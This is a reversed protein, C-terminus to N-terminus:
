DVKLSNVISEVQEELAPWLTDVCNYTLLLLKGKLSTFFFYSFTNRDTYIVKIIGVNKSNIKKLGDGIWQLNPEKKMQTMHFGKYQGVENEAVEQPMEIIKLSCFEEKDTLFVTPRSNPDPFRDSITKKDLEYFSKPVSIHVQGGLFSKSVLSDQGVAYNCFTFLTVFLKLARYLTKM